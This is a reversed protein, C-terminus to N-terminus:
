CVAVYQKVEKVNSLHRDFTENSYVPSQIITSSDSYFRVTPHQSSSEVIQGDDNLSRCAAMPVFTIDVNLDLMSAIDAIKDITFNYNGCEWRSIQSQTVKIHEAFQAQTMGLKKREKTIATSVQAQLKASLIDGPSLADEFLSFLDDIGCKKIEGM